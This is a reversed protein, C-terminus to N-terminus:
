ELSSCNGEIPLEVAERPQTSVKAAGQNTMETKCTFRRTDLHVDRSTASVGRDKCSNINLGVLQVIVM